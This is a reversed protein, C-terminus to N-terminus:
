RVSDYLINPPNEWKGAHEEKLDNLVIQRQREKLLEEASRPSHSDRSVTPICM